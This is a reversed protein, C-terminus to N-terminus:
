TNSFFQFVCTKVKGLAKITDSLHNHFQTSPCIAKFNIWSWPGPDLYQRTEQQGNINLRCKLFHIGSIKKQCISFAQTDKILNFYWKVWLDFTSKASKVSIWLTIYWELDGTSVFSSSFVAQTNEFLKEKYILMIQVMKRLQLWWLCSPVWCFKQPFNLPHMISLFWKIKMKERQTHPEFKDKM